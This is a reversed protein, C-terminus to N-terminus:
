RFSIPPFYRISLHVDLHFLRLRLSSIGEIKLCKEALVLLTEM